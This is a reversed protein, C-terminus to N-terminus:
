LMLIVSYLILNFLSTVQEQHMVPLLFITLRWVTIYCIQEGEEIEM